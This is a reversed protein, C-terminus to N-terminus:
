LEESSKSAERCAVIASRGTGAASCCVSSGSPGVGQLGGSVDLDPHRVAALQLTGEVEALSNSVDSLPYSSAATYIHCQRLCLLAAVGADQLQVLCPLAFKPEALLEAGSLASTQQLNTSCLWGPM